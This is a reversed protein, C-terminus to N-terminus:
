LWKHRIDDDGSVQNIYIYGNVLFLTLSGCRGRYSLYSLYMYVSVFLFCFLLITNPRKDRVEMGVTM